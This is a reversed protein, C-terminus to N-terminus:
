NITLSRIYWLYVAAFQDGVDIADTLTGISWLEPLLIGNPLPLQLANPYIITNPAFSRGAFYTRGQSATQVVIPASRWLQRGDGARIIVTVNRNAAAASCTFIFRMAIPEIVYADNVVYHIETGAAPDPITEAQISGRVIDARFPVAISEKSRSTPPQSGNL